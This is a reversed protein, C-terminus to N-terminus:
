RNVLCIIDENHGSDNIWIENFDNEGTKQICRIFHKRRDIVNIKYMRM